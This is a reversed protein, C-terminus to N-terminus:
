ASTALNLLYCPKVSPKLGGGSARLPNKFLTTRSSTGRFQVPKCWRNGRLPCGRLRRRPLLPVWSDALPRSLLDTLYVQVSVRDQSIKPTYWVFPKLGDGLRARPVRDIRYPSLPFRLGGENIFAGFCRMVSHTFQLLLGLLAILVSSPANM